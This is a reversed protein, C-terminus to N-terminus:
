SYRSGRHRAPDAQLRPQEPDVCRSGSWLARARHEMMRHIGSIAVAAHILFQASTLLPGAVHDLVSKSFADPTSDFLLGDLLHLTAAIYGVM